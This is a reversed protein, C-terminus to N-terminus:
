SVAIPQISLLMDVEAEIEGHSAACTFVIRHYQRLGGPDNALLDTIEVEVEIEEGDTAWPGGLLATRDEGNIEISITDPNINEEYLGYVLPHTHSPITVGHSHDGDSQTIFTFLEPATTPIEAYVIDDDDTLFRFIRNVFDGPVAPDAETGGMIVHSHGTSTTTLVEAGGAGGGTVSSKLGSTRFRLIAYNLALVEAGLRATFEAPVSSSMRRTYPGVANYTLTIPVHVKLAKVDYMMDLIVDTDSTRRDAITSIVLRASREGDADRTRTIDMVYFDDDLEVYKYDDVKGTYVVRVLDGVEINRRLGRVSISYERRPDKNRTLYVEATLKLANAANVINTASNTIPRMNPFAAVRIRPGYAAVSADDQIYFYSSGDDNTGTEIDYDGLTANEITLQSVGQGAGIPIVINIIEDDAYNLRFSDIFALETHQAIDPQVQGKLQVLRVGSAGGFAGFQLTRPSELRYHQNWRDRLIDVARLPSEGEYTVSTNGIGADVEASWGSVVAVLDTVVTAVDVNAYARRFGVTASRALEILEDDCEVTLIAAGDPSDSLTLASFFFRGIYGDVADYIDFKVGPGILASRPDAAPITFMAAGVKDLSRTDSLSLVTALPGGGIITDAADLVDIRFHSLTPLM